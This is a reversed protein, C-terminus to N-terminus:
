GLSWVRCITKVGAATYSDSGELKLKERKAKTAAEEAYNVGGIVYRNYTSFPGSKGSRTTSYTVTVETRAEHDKGKAGNFRCKIDKLAGKGSIERMISNMKTGPITTTITKAEADSVTGFTAALASFATAVTVFSNSKKLAM